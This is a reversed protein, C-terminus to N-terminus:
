PDLIDGYFNCRTQLEWFWERAREWQAKQESDMWSPPPEGRTLIPPYGGPRLHGSRTLTEVEQRVRRKWKDPQM